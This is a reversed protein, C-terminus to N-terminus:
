YPVSGLLPLEAIGPDYTISENEDSLCHHMLKDGGPTNRKRERHLDSQRGRRQDIFSLTSSLLTAYSIQGM